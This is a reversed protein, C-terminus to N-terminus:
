KINASKKYLNIILDIKDQQIKFAGKHDNDKIIIGDIQLVNLVAYITPRNVGTKEHLKKIPAYVWGDVAMDVLTCLVKRQNDTYKGYSTIAENFM